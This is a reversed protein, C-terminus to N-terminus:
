ISQVVTSSAEIDREEDRDPPPLPQPQLVPHSGRLGGLAVSPSHVRSGGRQATPAAAQALVTPPTRVRKLARGVQSRLAHPDFAESLADAQVSDVAAKMDWDFEHLMKIVADQDGKGTFTANSM